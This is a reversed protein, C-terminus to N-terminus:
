SAQTSEIMAIFGKVAKVMSEIHYKLTFLQNSYEPFHERGYKCLLLVHDETEKVYEKMKEISFSGVMTSINHCRDALKVLILRIDKELGQYYYRTSTEKSKSLLVILEVAEPDLGYDVILETTTISCDEVVDHGLAVALTIDDYVELALLSSTVRMPHDIYPEGSKRTQGEHYKTAVNIMKLMNFFNRGKAFGKLYVMEKHAM